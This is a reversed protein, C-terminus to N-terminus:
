SFMLLFMRTANLKVKKEISYKETSIRIYETERCNIKKSVVM